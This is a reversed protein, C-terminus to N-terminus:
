KPERLSMGHESLRQRVENLSTQGFNKCSMLEVETKDALDGLTKVGLNEVARRARVSFEVDDLSLGAARNDPQPKMPIDPIEREAVYDAGEELAQGLRLGKANLMDKIEKLSTEGFNKYALLEAETTKILDGLTRINMKKLCNRARVSLEFDTVPIDLVANRKAVRRAQDEDFFMTKSADADKLFLRARPHNPNAKLIRQLCETAKDNQGADEYLVALNILANVYIPPQANCRRYLQMAEEEQGHLDLFFAERFLSPSHDEEMELAKDYSELAEEGAGSMEKVLGSVYRGDASDLDKIKSLAKQAQEVQGSLALFEVKKIAVDLSDWGKAEARELEEIATDYRGMQGLCMAQYWHREKNDTAEGLAAFAEPYRALFFRCLGIKLAAAGKPDPNQQELTGLAQRLKTVSDSLDNCVQLMQEIDERQWSDKQVIQDLSEATVESMFCTEWPDTKDAPSPRNEEEL